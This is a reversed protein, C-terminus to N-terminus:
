RNAETKNENYGMLDGWWWDGLGVEADGGSRGGQDGNVELFVTQLVLLIEKSM